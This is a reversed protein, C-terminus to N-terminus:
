VCKFLNIFADVRCSWLRRLPSDFCVFVIFAMWTVGYTAALSWYFTEIDIAYEGDISQYDTEKFGTTNNDDYSRNVPSGCLFPNGIYNTEDLTLFKGQSPISGSMNNYSVNFVVLYDLKTLGHPISGHLMNSSLDISEIDMLSSFRGPVLGSLSNHSLNLARLREFDGLEKPIEGSLENSSLDLGFMFDFSEGGYSEYRRKSAFEVTFELYGSYDIDLELPLDLFRSVFSRSYAELDNEGNAIGFSDSHNPDIEYDLSRGFSINNLCSPISGNLKNNALDLVKISKLECLSTSIHGTLTNGRLLLYIVYKNSGFHPIKGSLKNNRLDLLMVNELLTSPVVGSFENDHLYLLGMGQRGNFHSPLNGSINNRSLDLVKFSIDFLTRPITGKLLNNSVSLYLFYFGGFWRPIVGQLYNNSLDLFILGKSHLLGDGIKTFLNNDAILVMLSELKTPQSFVQESFRNYSLKLIGLKYCGVRFNKPLTGSFNNHSLDLFYLKKMEGLSSPLAGQFGNNSLNLHRTNQLVHGIHEPLRQDFKNISLDLVQLSHVLLRPLQFITLSSNRLLLVQLKPYNELFWSPSIGTLKNNSLNILRLDKQHHLFSPVIELNCYQLDIVSLQFRLPWSIETEIKLLSSKSSLKFVKLKSLNAILEFSFFGEFENDLFSLYELSDLDSIFSPITGNLNNSSIDLVQLQTLNGFCQPLQGVFKNRSLDLERLHKLKCLGQNELLGSFKNDSLDMAQLKHMHSLDPVHGILLNGSLDLMELNRLDKLEKVPFIGDMYNGHLILTKLSSAANLFPLVSNNVINDGLDLIELKRLRGLSKYGHIDDFWGTSGFWNLKLTKLEEFPYFLSLNMQFPDEKYTHNLFLGIVRGSTRDCKIREWQCCDSKTDSSWDYSYEENVYAKLALLGKREKEICSRSGHM